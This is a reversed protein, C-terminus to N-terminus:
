KVINPHSTLNLAMTKLNKPPVISKIEEPTALVCAFGSAVSLDNLNQADKKLVWGAVYFKDHRYGAYSRLEYAESFFCLQSFRVMFENLNQIRKNYIELELEKLKQASSDLDATLTEFMQEATWCVNVASSIRIRVFGLSSFIADVQNATSPLAFYVGYVCNEDEDTRVFYVDNRARTIARCEDYNELPIRGFRFEVYKMGYLDRLREDISKLHELQTRINEKESIRQMVADYKGQLGTMIIYLEDIYEITSEISHESESFDRYEPVLKFIESIRRAKQLAETYPNSMEFEYLNKIKKMTERASEPSFPGNSMCLRLAADVMEVPGSLTVFILKEPPM